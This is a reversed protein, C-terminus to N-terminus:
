FLIGPELSHNFYVSTLSIWFLYGLIWTYRVKSGFQCVFVSGLCPGGAIGLGLDWRTKDTLIQAHAPLLKHVIFVNRRTTTRMLLLPSGTGQGQLTYVLYPLWSFYLAYKIISLCLDKTFEGCKGAFLSPALFQTFILRTHVAPSHKQSQAPALAVKLNALARLM